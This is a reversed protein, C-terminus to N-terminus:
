DVARGRRRWETWFLRPMRWVLAVAATPSKLSNVLLTGSRFSTSERLTSLVSHADALRRKTDRHTREDLAMRRKAARLEDDKAAVSEREALLASHVDKMRRQKDALSRELRKSGATLLGLQQRAEVLAVDSGRLRRQKDALMEETQRLRIKIGELDAALAGVRTESERLHERDLRLAQAVGALEESREAIEDQAAELRRRLFNREQIFSERERDAEARAESLAKDKAFFIRENSEAQDSRITDSAELKAVLIQSECKLSDVEDRSRELEERAQQLEKQIDQVTEVRAVGGECNRAIMEELKQSLAHTEQRATVLAESSLREAYRTIRMDEDKAHRLGRQLAMVEDCSRRLLSLLEDGTGVPLFLYTDTANYVGVAQYGLDELYEAVAKYEAAGSAECFVWPKDDELLRSAGRLVELEMGEVDIKILRVPRAVGVDDLRAVEIDGDDSEELRTAGINNENSVKIKATGAKAGLALMHVQVRGQVHNVRINKELFKATSPVAEFAHVRCGLVKAFYLTHNGINAGADIVIDQAHLSGGISRLMELEYFSNTAAITKSIHDERTPLFMSVPIGDYSFDVSFSQDHMTNDRATPLRHQHRAAPMAELGRQPLTLRGAGAHRKGKGAGDEM